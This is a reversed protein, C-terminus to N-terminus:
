HGFLVKTMKKAAKGSGGVCSHMAVTCKVHNSFGFTSQEANALKESAAAGFYQETWSGSLGTGDACWEGGKDCVVGRGPSYVGNGFDAGGATPAAAAAAATGFLMAQM